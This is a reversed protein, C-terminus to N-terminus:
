KIKKLHTFVPDWFLLANEEFVSLEVPHEGRWYLSNYFDIGEGCIYESGAWKKEAEKIPNKDKGAYIAEVFAKSSEPFFAGYSKKENAHIFWNILKSLMEKSQEFGSFTYVQNRDYSDRGIIIMEDIKEISTSLVLYKIWSSIFDKAKLKAAKIFVSKSGYVNNFSGVVKIGDLPINLEGKSEKENIFHKALTLLNSIDEFEEKFSQEGPIGQPSFGALISYEKINELDVKSEQGELILQDLNYKDLASINFVERNAPETIEFGESIMLRNNILYKCPHIFFKILENLEISELDYNKVIPINENIFLSEKKNDSLINEGLERRKNSYSDPSIFYSYDFGHLKHEKKKLGELEDMMKQVLMSPLKVNESHQDQGLYSIFLSESTSGLLEIFLLKDDEKMIRDGKKPYTYILDFSPRTASRPFVGENLGLICVKKFPISRYPIYSSLVVGHGFGSSSAINESLQGIFWPKILSFEVKSDTDIFNTYEILRDFLTILGSLSRENFQFLEFIWKKIDILWQKLSKSKTMAKKIPKLMQLFSSFKAVLEGHDSTNIGNSPIFGKYTEFDNPEIAFGLMFNSVAKELSYMSDSLELGWHIRNEIFWKKLTFVDDESLEFRNRITDIELFDLVEDIKYRSSILELFSIVENYNQNMNRSPTSIPIHLENEEGMFVSEIVSAYNDMEPVMILVDEPNLDKQNDFTTLLHDKLIEVERKPNHCSHIEIAQNSELSDNSIKVLISNCKEKELNEFHYPTNKQSLFEKLLHDSEAKPSQWEIFKISNSSQKSNLSIDFFHIDLNNAFSTILDLFPSSTTSLGFVFIAEPYKEIEFRENTTLEKLSYFASKRNAINPYEKDWILNLENWLKMQWIETSDATTTCSREWQDLLEPRFVQYLDFVDAIQGSWQFLEKDQEPISELNLSEGKARILEFLHWQIAIRDSPLNKPLDPHQVRYLKWMLESPLIFEFNFAIGELKAVELTLWQQAEKNQVVVWIKQFPKGFRYIKTKKGFVKALEFLSTSKYEFFM